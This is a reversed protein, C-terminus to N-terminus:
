NKALYYNEKSIDTEKGDNILHLYIRACTAPDHGLRSAVEIINLGAYILHSANSHRLDYPRHTPCVKNFLTQFTDTGLPNQGDKRTFLYQKPSLEKCLEQLIKTLDTPIPVTRYSRIRRSKLEKVVFANGSSGWKKGVVVAAQRVEIQSTGVTKLIIHERRLGVVESPRLGAMWMIAAFNAATKGTDGTASLKDQIRRCESPTFVSNTDVQFTANKRSYKVKKLPNEKIYNNCFAHDMVAGFAQKRKNFTIAAVEGSKDLKKSIEVYATKCVSIDIDGLKLSNEYIWKLMGQEIETPAELNEPLIIFERIVKMLAVKPYKGPSKTNVLYVASSGIADAFSRLSNHSWSHSKMRAYDRACEIFSIQSKTWADPLGTISSFNDGAEVAKELSKKFANAQAKNIFARTKDRGQVRWKVRWHKTGSELKTVNFIQVKNM